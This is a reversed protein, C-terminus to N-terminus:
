VILGPTFVDGVTDGHLVTTQGLLPECIIKAYMIVKLFAIGLYKSFSLDRDLFRMHEGVCVHCFHGPNPKGRERVAVEYWSGVAPSLSPGKMESNM